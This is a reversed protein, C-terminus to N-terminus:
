CWSVVVGFAVRKLTGMSLMQADDGDRRPRELDAAPDDNGQLKMGPWDGEGEGSIFPELHSHSQGLKSAQKERGIESGNRARSQSRHLAKTHLQLRCIIKEAKTRSNQKVQDM